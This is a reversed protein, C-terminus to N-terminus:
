QEKGSDLDINKVAALKKLQKQRKMEKGSDPFIDSGTSSKV